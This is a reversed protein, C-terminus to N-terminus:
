RRAFKKEINTTPLGKKQLPGSLQQLDHILSSPHRHVSAAALDSGDHGVRQSGMYWLGGPEETRPIRLALISPHAEIGKEMPDKRAWPDFGHRNCRRCQCTPEKGSAGGPFGSYVLSDKNFIFVVSCIQCILQLKNDGTRSESSVTLIYHSYNKPLGRTNQKQIM